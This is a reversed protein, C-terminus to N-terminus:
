GLKASVSSSSPVGAMDERRAAALAAIGVRRGATTERLRAVQRCRVLFGAGVSNM